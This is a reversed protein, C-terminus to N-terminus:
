KRWSPARERRRGGIGPIVSSTSACACSSSTTFTDSAAPSAAATAAVYRLEARMYRQKRHDCRPPAHCSTVSNKTHLLECIPSSDIMASLDPKKECGSSPRSKTSAHTTCVFRYPLLIWAILRRNGPSRCTFSLYRPCKTDRGVQEAVDIEGLWVPADARM